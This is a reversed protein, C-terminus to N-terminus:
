VFWSYVNIKASISIKKRIYKIIWGANAKRIKRNEGTEIILFFPRVDLFDDIFIKICMDGHMSFPLDHLIAVLCFFITKKCREYISSCISTSRFSAKELVDLLNNESFFIYLM